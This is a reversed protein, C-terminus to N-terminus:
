PDSHPPPVLHQSFVTACAAEDPIYRMADYRLIHMLETYRYKIRHQSELELHRIQNWSNNVIVVHELLMCAITLADGIHLM